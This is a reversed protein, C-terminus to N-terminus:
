HVLKQPLLFMFLSCYFPSIRSEIELLNFLLYWLCINEWTFIQNWKESRCSFTSFIWDFDDTRPTSFLAYIHIIPIEHVKSEVSISLLLTVDFHSFTMDCQEQWNTLSTPTLIIKKLFIKWSWQEIMTKM